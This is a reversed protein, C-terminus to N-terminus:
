GVGFGRQFTCSYCRSGSRVRVRTAPTSGSLTVDEADYSGGILASLVFRSNARVPVYTLKLPPPDARVFHIASGGYTHTRTSSQM